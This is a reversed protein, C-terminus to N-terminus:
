PRFDCNLIILLYAPGIAVLVGSPLFTPTLGNHHTLHPMSSIDYENTYKYLLLWTSFLTDVDINTSSHCYQNHDLISSM